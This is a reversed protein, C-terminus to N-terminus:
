PEKAKRRRGTSARDVESGSTSRAVLKKRDDEEDVREERECRKLRKQCNGERLKGGEAPQQKPGDKETEPERLTRERKAM